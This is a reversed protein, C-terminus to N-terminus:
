FSQNKKILLTMVFLFLNQIVGAEDRFPIITTDVWYFSGDKAKNRIEGKWIKGAKITQWLNTIFDKSHFGSNLIRHDKGILEERSYKSIECFKDNVYTIKGQTDTKAVIAIYDLGERYFKNENSSKDM